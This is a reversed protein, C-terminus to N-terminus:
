VIKLRLYRKDFDSLIQLFYNKKVDYAIRAGIKIMTNILDSRNNKHSIEIAKM